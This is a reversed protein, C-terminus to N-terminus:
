FCLFLNFYVNGYLFSLWYFGIFEKFAGNFLGVFCLVMFLVIWLFWSSIVCRVFFMLRLAVFGDFGCYVSFM